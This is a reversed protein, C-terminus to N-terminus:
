DKNYNITIDLSINNDILDKVYTSITLSLSNQKLNPTFDDLSIRKIISFTNQIETLISSMITRVRSMLKQGLFEWKNKELERYIKGIVFRMWGSTIFDDGNQYKKYYYILNNCVLYNCKYRELKKEIDETEYPKTTPTSYNIYKVSPSYKDNLLGNLYIYYGPRKRGYVMMGKWFYILRNEKDATYNYIYDGGAETIEIIERDTIEKFEGDKKMKYVAGSDSEKKYLIGKKPNVPFEDVKELVYESEHNQILFQCNFDIAHKLFVEYERAYKKNDPVFFYDPYVCEDNIDFIKDLAALYMDKTQTKDIKARRLVYDGTRIGSRGLNIFNCNILKSNKSITHDLREEGPKPFLPGEFIESYEYRSVTFRFYNDGDGNEIEVRINSEDAFEDATKGITKSWMEISGADKMYRFLMNHTDEFSPTISIEKYTYFYTAEIVRGSYLLYNNDKSEEIKYGHEKLANLLDEKGSIHISQNYYRQIAQGEPITGTHFIINGRGTMDPLIVYGQSFKNEKFNIELVLTQYGDTVKDLDLNLSGSFDTMYDTRSYLGLCNEVYSYEPYCYEPGQFEPRPIYILDRNNLSISKSELSQPLIESDIWESFKWIWYKTKGEDALVKYKYGTKPLEPLQNKLSFQGQSTYISLDEEEPKIWENKWIYWSNESIVFAKYLDNENINKPLPLLEATEFVEPYEIFSDLDIYDKNKLKETSIPKYLYLVIGRKLLEEFYNRSSFNKGFWIDLENANRVIIPKEYSLQSDVVESVIMFDTTDTTYNLGITGLKLYM